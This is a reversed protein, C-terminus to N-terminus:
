KSWGNVFIGVTGATEIQMRFSSLVPLQIWYM